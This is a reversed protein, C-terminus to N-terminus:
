ETGLLRPYMNKTEATGKKRFYSDDPSVFVRNRTITKENIEKKPWASVPMMEKESRRSTHATLFYSASFCAEGMVAFAKRAVASANQVSRKGNENTYRM